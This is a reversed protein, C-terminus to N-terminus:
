YIRRFTREIAEDEDDYQRPAFDNNSSNHEKNTNNKNNEKVKKLMADTVVLDSVKADIAMVAYRLADLCHDDGDQPQETDAKYEYSQLERLLNICRKHIKLTRTLLRSRVKNIGAFRDKKAKTAPLGENLASGILSAGMGAYDIAIERVDKDYTLEKISNLQADEHMKRKYIERLVYITGDQVGVLLAVFPDTYGTDCGIIYEKCEVDEEIENENGFEAYVLGEAATWKGLVDREYALTGKWSDLMDLYEQALFPNDAPNLCYAMRKNNELLKADHRNGVIGFRKAIWHKSGKSNCSIVVQMPVGELKASVRGLLTVYEDEQLDTAEDIFCATLTLGRIRDPEELSSYVITGGGKLTITKESINHTFSGAPLISNTQGDGEILSKLTTLKLSTLTKRFLGVRSGKKSAAAICKLLMVNTKGSRIGGFICLERTADQFIQMQKQTLEYKM